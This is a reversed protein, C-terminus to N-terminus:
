TAPLPDRDLGLRAALERPGVLVLESVARSIGVYLLTDDVEADPCVLIVSDAELGKARHVNECVISDTGQEEWRVLGMRARLAERVKSGPTAVLIASPERGEISLLRELEAEAATTAAELGDAPAWRVGLSGPRNIPAPAGDLHGRLLTAIEFSNRCNSV